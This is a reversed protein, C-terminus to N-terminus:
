RASSFILEYALTQRVLHMPIQNPKLVGAELQGALILEVVAVGTGATTLELATLRLHDHPMFHIGATATMNDADIAMAMLVVMDDRTRVFVQKAEKVGDDLDYSVRTLLKQVFELHGPHRLTKYEVNPIHPYADLNGVGGSTTFGEYIIGDVLLTEHEDLPQVTEVIHNRKRLAPKLYENILGEPSWTIAYHAPGFAVQPLAGVRLNLTKPTGLRDFLELGIYSVLGPALGTQPVFTLRSIGLETIERTVDNDETFDVYHIGHRAALQAVQINITFPTSCVVVDPQELKMVQELSDRGGAVHMSVSGSEKSAPSLNLEVQARDLTDQYADVLVVDYAHLFRIIKAAALGVRGAGVIMIKSM